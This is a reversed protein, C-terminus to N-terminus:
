TIPDFDLVPERLDNLAIVSQSHSPRGVDTFGYMASENEGPSPTPNIRSYNLASNYFKVCRTWTCRELPLAKYSHYTFVGTFTIFAVGASLHVTVAQNGGSVQNYLTTTALVSLNLLFSCELINLPWKKYVGGTWWLLIMLCNAVIAVTLLNINPDGLVNVASILLLLVRVVLLLGTWCRYKDKYPGLYADFFPKMRRVWFLVRLGSKSQLSPGFLVVLTYPIFLALLTVVGTLFLPIQKGNIFAVNGDHLWVAQTQDAYNLITFSITTTIARQLKTYSLLFLTALVQVINRGCLRGVCTHYRSAIVIAGTLTWIYIPFVFQLWAKGYADMGDYFCTEIGLDLNLWSIFVTLFNITGHPFLADQNEKVINAYFLLGNITGESVTINLIILFIILAVGAAIFALLLALHVNSCHKCKSSGLVVSLGQKCGGCLTGSHNFACQADPYMLDIDINESKCYDFPCHKHIIYVIGEEGEGSNNVSNHGESIGIWFPFRRHVTQDAIECTVEYERLLTACICQLSGPSLEFGFPCPLLTVNVYVPLNVYTDLPVKLDKFWHIAKNIIKPDVPNQDGSVGVTLLIVENNNGSQVTYSINTCTRGGQQALQWDKLRGQTSGQRNQLLLKSYIATPVGAPIPANFWQGVAVVSVNFQEGPRITLPHYVATCNPQGTENCLCVRSPDSSVDPFGSKSTFWQQFGRWGKRSNGNYKVLCNELSDGYVDNGALQAHNDLFTVGMPFNPDGTEIQYELVNYLQFFCLSRLLTRVTNAVFIAGGTNDAENAVFDLFTIPSLHILSNGYLAIGGGSYGLNGTFCSNGHFFVQSDDALIATGTNNSFNSNVLTFNPFNAAYVVSRQQPQSPTYSTNNFFSVNQLLVTVQDGVNKAPGEQIIFMYLAAGISGRNNYVSTDKITIRCPTSQDLILGFGLTKYSGQNDFFHSNCIEIATRKALAASGYSFVTESYHFGSAGEAAVGYSSTCNHVSIHNSNLSSVTFIFSSGLSGKNRSAVVGQLLIDVRYMSQKLNISIGIASDSETDTQLLQSNNMVFSHAESDLSFKQRDNKNLDGYEIYINGGNTNNFFVSWSLAFNRLVNTAYVGYGEGHQVTVEDLTVNTASAFFLSANVITTQHRVEKGCFSFTISKVYVDSVDIFKFANNVCIIRSRIESNSQIILGSVGEISLTTNSPMYHDGPMFILVTNSTIYQGSPNRAIEFLTLCNSSPLPCATNGNPQIYYVDGDLTQTLTALALLLLIAVAATPLKVCHM